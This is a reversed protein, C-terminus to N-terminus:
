DDEAWDASVREFWARFRRVNEEDGEVRLRYCTSLWGGDNGVETFTLGCRDEASRITHLASSRVLAGAEFGFNLRM